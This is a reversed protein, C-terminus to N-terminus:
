SGLEVTKVRNRRTSPRRKMMKARAETPHDSLHQAASGEESAAPGAGAAAAGPRMGMPPGGGAFLAGLGAPVQVKIQMGAASIKNGQQVGRRSSRTWHEEYECLRIAGGFVTPSHETRSAFTSCCFSPVAGPSQYARNMLRFRRRLQLPSPRLRSMQLQSLKPPSPLLLYIPSRWRVLGKLLLTQVTWIVWQWDLWRLGRRASM